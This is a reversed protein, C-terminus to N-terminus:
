TYKRPNERQFASRVILPYHSYIYHPYLSPLPLCSLNALCFTERTNQPFAKGALYEHFELSDHSKTNWDYARCTAVEFTLKKRFGSTRRKLSSDECERM